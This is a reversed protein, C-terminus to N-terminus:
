AHIYINLPFFSMENTWKENFYACLSADFKLHGEGGSGALPQMLAEVCICVM